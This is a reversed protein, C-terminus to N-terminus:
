RAGILVRVLATGSELPELARGLVTAGAVGANMTMAMGAAPSASLRDGIAVAGYSADVRCLAIRSTAVAVQGRLPAPDEAGVQVCGVVLADAPGASRVIYGPADIALSVVDGPQIAEQALFLDLAQVAARSVSDEGAAVAVPRASGVVVSEDAASVPASSEAATSDAQPSPVDFRRGLDNSPAVPEGKPFVGVANRLEDARSFDLLRRGHVAEEVGQFRELATYSRLGPEAQFFEQHAHMSPIKADEWKPQVISQEEFGIRLGWVMYDFEADAGAPGRVILEGPSVEAVALPVPEKRPTATATLGIDPNTVLAFTEGLKVRAEGNILRGSGRTYVAVEDGEPSAYVIVKSSDAPHNQVFSVAGSGIIKYTSYGVLAYAGSSFNHFEGGVVSGFATIGRDQNPIYGYSFYPSGNYLYGGYSPGGASIGVDGVALQTEFAPYASNKFRGGINSGQASIGVAGDALRAEAGTNTNSFYGGHVRGSANIGVGLSALIATETGLPNRFVGSASLGVAEVGTDGLFKGGFSWGTGDVGTGGPDRAWFAGGIAAAQAYVGYSNLVSGYFAGGFLGGVGQVGRSNPDTSSFYGPVLPTGTVRIGSTTPSSTDGLVTTGTPMQITLQGAKGQSTASTDIFDSGPHGGLNSANLAYPAAQMRTRPSLTEGAVQVELWVSSFDRFTFDLSIYTGPGSGDTVAGSGLSVGFLGGSVLVTSHQDVMIENGATEADMFRFVMDYTGTLPNGNQDRLVGQYNVISPPTAAQAPISGTLGMVGAVLASVALVMASRSSRTSRAHHLSPLKM